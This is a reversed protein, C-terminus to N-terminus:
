IARHPAPGFSPTDFMSTMTGLSRIRQEIKSAIMSLATGLDALLIKLVESLPKSAYIIATENVSSVSEVAPIRTLIAANNM